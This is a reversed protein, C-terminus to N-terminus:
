LLTIGAIRRSELLSQIRELMLRSPIERGSEWQWIAFSGVLLAGALDEQTFGLRRRAYVLRKSLAKPEPEPDYGLFQIIAPIYRIAPDTLGCEWNKASETHVGLREAVDQQM